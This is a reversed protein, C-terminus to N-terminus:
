AALERNVKEAEAIRRSLLCGLRHPRNLKYVVQVCPSEVFYQNLCNTCALMESSRNRDRVNGCGGTRVLWHWVTNSKSSSARRHGTISSIHCRPECTPCNCYPTCRRCAENGEESVGAENGEEPVGAAGTSTDTFPMRM